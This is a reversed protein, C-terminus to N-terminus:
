QCALNDLIVLYFQTKEAWAPNVKSVELAMRHVKYAEFVHKITIEWRILDLLDRFRSFFNKLKWATWGVTPSSGGGVKQSKGFPDNEWIAWFLLLFNCSFFSRRLGRVKSIAAPGRCIPRKSQQM